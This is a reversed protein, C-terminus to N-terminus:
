LHVELVPAPAHPCCEPHLIHGLLELGDVLRPGPRSFCSGDVAVVRRAGLSALEETFDEAEEFAREADYGRPMVVVVEPQMAAVQEWSAPEPAEGALGLVDDGGAYNILQPVWHGAGYVPDLWELAAVRVRRRDRVALQVRDIRDAAGGVLDGAAEEADVAQAVTRVEGFVEGLTTASLSVLMPDSDMRAALDRVQGPSVTCVTCEGQAVIVDPVLARLRQEDLEYLPRGEEALDRVARDVEAADLGPPIVPQTVRPVDEAAAPHDCAHTAAVVDDGVGLAFLMETAAPHLSAIRM